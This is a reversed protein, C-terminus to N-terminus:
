REVEGFLSTRSDWRQVPDVVPTSRPAPPAPDAPASGADARGLQSLEDLPVFGRLRMPDPRDFPGGGGRVAASSDRDPPAQVVHLAPGAVPPQAGSSPAISGFPATPRRGEEWCARLELGTLPTRWRDKGCYGVDAALSTRFHRCTSCTTSSRHCVWCRAAEAQPAGCHPCAWMAM